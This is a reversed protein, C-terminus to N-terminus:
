IWVAFIKMVKFFFMQNDKQNTYDLRHSWCLSPITEYQSNSAQSASVKYRWYVWSPFWIECCAWWDGRGVSDPVDVQFCHCPGLNLALFCLVAPGFRQLLHHQSKDVIEVLDRLPLNRLVGDEGGPEHHFLVCPSPLGLPAYYVM